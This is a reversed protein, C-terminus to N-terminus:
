PSSSTTSGNWRSMWSFCNAEYLYLPNQAAISVALSLFRNSSRCSAPSGGQINQRWWAGRSAAVGAFRREMVYTASPRVASAAEAHDLQDWAARGSTSQAHKTQTGM